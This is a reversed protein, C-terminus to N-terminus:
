NINLKHNETWGLGDFTLIYVGKNLFPTQINYKQQQSDKIPIVAHHILQGNISYFKLNLTGKQNMEKMDITISGNSPAPNPIVRLYNESKNLQQIKTIESPTASTVNSYISKCTDSFANIAFYYKTGNNLGLVTASITTDGLVTDSETYEGSTTGYNILYGDVGSVETWNLTVEGDGSENGLLIPMQPTLCFSRDGWIELDDYWVKFSSKNGKEPDTVVDVVSGYVKLIDIDQWLAGPNTTTQTKEDFITEGDVKMWYRGSTDNSAKCYFELTQWTDFLLEKDTEFSTADSGLRAYSGFVCNGTVDHKNIRPSVRDNDVKLEFLMWFYDDPLENLVAIDGDVKMKVKYYFESFNCNDMEAQVRAWWKGKEADNQWTYFVTNSADHPDEALNAGLMDPNSSGDSADAYNIHFKRGDAEMDDVWDFGTSNDTGIIDNIRGTEPTGTTNPEFGSKFLLTKCPSPPTADSQSFGLTPNGLLILLSILYFAHIQNILTKM